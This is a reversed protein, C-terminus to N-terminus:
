GWSPVPLDPISVPAPRRGTVAAILREGLPTPRVEGFRADVEFFGRDTLRAVAATVDGERHDSNLFHVHSEISEPLLGDGDRRTPNEGPFASLVDRYIEPLKDAYEKIQEDSPM